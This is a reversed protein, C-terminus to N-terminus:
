PLLPGRACGGVHQGPAAGNHVPSSRIFHSSREAGPGAGCGEWGRRTVGLRPGDRCAPAGSPLRRPPLAPRVRPCSAGLEVGCSLGPSHASGLLARQRCHTM